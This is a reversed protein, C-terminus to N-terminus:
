EAGHIYVLNIGTFYKLKGNNYILSFINWDLAIHPLLQNLLRTGVNLEGMYTATSRKDIGEVDYDLEGVQWNTSRKKANITRIIASIQFRM